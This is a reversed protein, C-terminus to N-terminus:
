LSVPSRGSACASKSNRGGPGDTSPSKARPASRDLRTPTTGNGPPSVFGPSRHGGHGALVGSPELAHVQRDAPGGPPDAGKSAVGPAVPAGGALPSSIEYVHLNYLLNHM